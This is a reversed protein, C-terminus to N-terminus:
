LRPASVAEHQWLQPLPFARNDIGRNPLVVQDYVIFAYLGLSLCLTASFWTQVPTNAARATQQSRSQQWRKPLNLCVQLQPLPTAAPM